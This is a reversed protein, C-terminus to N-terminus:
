ELSSYSRSNGRTNHVLGRYKHRVDFYNWLLYVNGFGSSCLLVWSLVLSFSGPTGAPVNTNKEPTSQQNAPPLDWGNNTALKSNVQNVPAPQGVTPTSPQRSATELNANAPRDLMGKQIAPFAPQPPANNGPNNVTSNASPPPFSPRNPWSTNNGQPTNQNTPAPNSSFRDNSNFGSSQQGAPPLLPPPSINSNSNGVAAAHQHSGWDGSAHDTDVPQDLRRRSPTIPGAIAPQQRSGGPPLITQNPSAVRPINQNTGGLPNNHLPNTLQNFANQTQQGANQLAGRLQQGTQQLSERVPGTNGFLQEPNPLIAESASRLQNGLNQASNQISNGLNQTSNQLSNAFNGNGSPPLIEKAKAALDNIPQAANQFTQAFGQSPTNPTGSPPLIPQNTQPQASYRGAGPPQATFQTQVVGDLSKKGETEALPKLATTLKQRPLSNRGVVVRIRGIPRIDDPVESSIPISQGEEFTALLEPEIQVIYEYRPSGDPMPQWGFMVGMGSALLLLTASEM